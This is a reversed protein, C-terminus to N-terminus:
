LCMKNQKMNWKDDTGLVDIIHEKRKHLLRHVCQSIFCFHGWQAHPGLIQVWDVFWITSMEALGRNKHNKSCWHQRETALVGGFGELPKQSIILMGSDRYELEATLVALTTLPSSEDLCISKYKGSYKNKCVSVFMAKATNMVLCTWWM